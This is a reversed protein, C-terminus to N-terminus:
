SMVPRSRRASSSVSMWYRDRPPSFFDQLVRRRCLHDSGIPDLSPLSPPAEILMTQIEAHRNAAVPAPVTKIPAPPDPRTCAGLAFGPGPHHGVAPVPTTEHCEIGERKTDTKSCRFTFGQSLPRQNLAGRSATQDGYPEVGRYTANDYLLRLGRPRPSVTDRPISRAAPDEGSPASLAFRQLRRCWNISYRM